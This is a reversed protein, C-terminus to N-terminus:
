YPIQNQYYQIMDYTKSRNSLFCNQIVKIIFNAAERESVNPNFRQRFCFLPILFVFYPSLSLYLSDDCHKAPYVTFHLSQTQLCSM